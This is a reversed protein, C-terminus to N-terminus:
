FIRSKREMETAFKLCRNEDGIPASDVSDFGVSLHREHIPRQLGVAGGWGAQSIGRINMQYNSGM